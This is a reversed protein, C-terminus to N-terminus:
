NRPDAKGPQGAKRTREGPPGTLLGGGIATVRRAPDQPDGYSARGRANHEINGRYDSSQNVTVCWKENSPIALELEAALSHLLAKCHRFNANKPLAVRLTPTLSGSASKTIEATLTALARVLNMTANM